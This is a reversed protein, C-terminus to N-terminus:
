QKRGFWQNELQASSPFSQLSAFWQQRRRGERIDERHGEPAWSFGAAVAWSVPVKTGESVGEGTCPGKATSVVPSTGCLSGVLAKWFLFTKNFGRPNLQYINSTLM